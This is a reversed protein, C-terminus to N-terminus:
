PRGNSGSGRIAKSLGVGLGAGIGGGLAIALVSGVADPKVSMLFVVGLAIGVRIVWSIVFLPNRAGTLLVGARELGLIRIGNVAGLAAILVWAALAVVIWAIWGWTTATMYVGPILVGLASLPGVTRNIRFLAAANQAAEAAVARHFLGLAVGEVALTVFLLLAGVIHLFLAISYLSM